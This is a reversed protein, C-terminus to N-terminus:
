AGEQQDVAVPETVTETSVDAASPKEKSPIVLQKKTSLLQRVAALSDLRNPYEASIVENQLKLITNSFNQNGMDSMDFYDKLWHNIEILSQQYIEQNMKSAAWIATQLKLNLNERLNQTFEPSMLPKSDASKKSITLFKATISHWTKALNERWDSANESLEDDIEHDNNASTHTKILPLQQTQQALTMLKLIANDTTLTPLLALKAIDQQIIQRLAFFQPDNLQKIRLDADNLLSIAASTEKELWLSRSAVRILYEAEQLLWDSPQNNGLSAVQQQLQALTESHSKTLNDGQELNKRLANLEATRAQKSQSFQQAIRQKNELLQQAIQQQNEVLQRKVLENLQLSYQAKQQESWYYHGASAAIALLGIMLAVVATKSTKQTSQKVHSATSKEALTVTGATTSKSSTSSATNKVPATSKDHNKNSSPQTERTSKAATVKTKAETINEAKDPSKEPNDATAPKNSSASLNAQHEVHKDVASTNNDAKTQEPPKKDSM